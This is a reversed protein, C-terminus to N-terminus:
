SARAAAPSRPGRVDGTRDTASGAAANGECRGARAGRLASAPAFLAAPVRRRRSPGRGPARHGPGATPLAGEAREAEKKGAPEPSRTISFQGRAAGIGAGRSRARRQNSAAERVDRLGWGEPPVAGRGWEACLCVCTSGSSSPQLAPLLSAHTQARAPPLALPWARPEPHGPQYGPIM